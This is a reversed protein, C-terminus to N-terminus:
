GIIGRPARWYSRLTFLGVHFAFGLTGLRRGGSRDARIGFFPQPLRAWCNRWPRVALGIQINSMPLIGAALFTLLVPTMSAFVDNTLHGICVSWLLRIHRPM